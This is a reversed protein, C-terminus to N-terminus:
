YFVRFSRMDLLMHIPKDLAEPSECSSRQQDVKLIIALKIEDPVDEPDGYGATYTLVVDNLYGRTTPWSTSYAPAIRGPQKYADVTYDTTVTLTQTTGATDVYQLSTVTALPCMQPTIVCPFRDWREVFTATIYQAWQYQQCYETAAKIYTELLSDEDNHDIKLRTKVEDISVPQVAAPVTCVVSSM